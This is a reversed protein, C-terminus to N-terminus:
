KKRFNYYNKIKNVKKESEKLDFHFKVGPDNKLMKRLLVFYASNIEEIDLSSKHFFNYRRKLQKITKDKDFEDDEFVDDYITETGLKNM